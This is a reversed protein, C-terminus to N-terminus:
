CVASFFLVFLLMLRHALNPGEEENDEEKRMGDAEDEDNEGELVGDSGEKQNTCTTAVEAEEITKRVAKRFRM